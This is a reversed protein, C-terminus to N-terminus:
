SVLEIDNDTIDGIDFLYLKDSALALAHGMNHSKTKGTAIAILSDDSENIKDIVNQKCWDCGIMVQGAIFNHILDGDYQALWATIVPKEVIYLGERGEPKAQIKMM